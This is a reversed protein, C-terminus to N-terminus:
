SSRAQTELSPPHLSCCGGLADRSCHPSPTCHSHLAFFRLTCTSTVSLEDAAREYKSKRKNHRAGGRLSV